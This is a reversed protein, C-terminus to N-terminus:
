QNRSRRSLYQLAAAADIVGRDFFVWGDIQSAAALDTVGLAIARRAFAAEDVWPLASGDSLLEEAVIRRGPEEVTAYGRHGLETLLTSKGGGSRGSIVVFRECQCHEDQTMGRETGDPTDCMGDFRSIEIGGGCGRRGNLSPSHPRGWCADRALQWSAKDPACILGGTLRTPRYGIGDFHASYGGAERHLLWGAAHDWPMLRNYFLLHCHGAAAM